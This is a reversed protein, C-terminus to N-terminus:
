HNKFAIVCHIKFALFHNIDSSSVDWQDIELPYRGLFLPSGVRPSGLLTEWTPRKGEGRETDSQIEEFM